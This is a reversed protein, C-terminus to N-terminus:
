NEINSAKRQKERDKKGHNEKEQKRKKNLNKSCLTFVHYSHSTINPHCSPLAPCLRHLVAHATSCLAPCPCPLPTPTTEREAGGRTPPAAKKMRRRRQTTSIWDKKRQSPAAKRGEGKVPMARRRGEQLNGKKKEKEKSSTSSHLMENRKNEWKKWTQTIKKWATKRKTKGTKKKLFFRKWQWDKWKYKENKM